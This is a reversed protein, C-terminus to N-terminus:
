PNTEFFTYGEQTPKVAINAIRSFEDSKFKHKEEVTISKNDVQLVLGNYLNTIDPTTTKIRSSYWYMCPHYVPNILEINEIGNMSFETKVHLGELLYMFYRGIVEITAPNVFKYTTIKKPERIILLYPTFNKDFLDYVLNVRDARINRDNLRNKDEQTLPREYSRKGFMGFLEYDLNGLFNLRLNSRRKLMDVNGKMLRPEYDPFNCHVFQYNKDVKEKGNKKIKIEKQVNVWVSYTMKSQSNPAVAHALDVFYAFERVEYALENLM